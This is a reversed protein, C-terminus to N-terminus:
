WLSTDIKCSIALDLELNDQRKQKVIRTNWKTKSEDLCPMKVLWCLSIPSFTDQRNGQNKRSLKEFNSPAPTNPM